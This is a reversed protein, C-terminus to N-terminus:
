RIVGGAKQVERFLRAENTEPKYLKSVRAKLGRLPVMLNAIDTKVTAGKLFPPMGRWFVHFKQIEFDPLDPGTYVVPRDCNKM